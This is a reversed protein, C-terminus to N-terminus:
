RRFHKRWAAPIEDEHERILDAVTRLHDARLGYNQALELVPELWFKAEGEAHARSRSVPIGGAFLLLVPIGACSFGNPECALVLVSGQRPRVLQFQAAPSGKAAM